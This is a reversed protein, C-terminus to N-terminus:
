AAAVQPNLFAFGLPGTRTLDLDGDLGAADASGVQM